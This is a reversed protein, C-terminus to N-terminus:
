GLAREREGRGQRQWACSHRGGHGDNSFPLAEGLWRQEIKQAEETWGVARRCRGGGGQMCALARAASSASAPTDGDRSVEEDHGSPWSSRSAVEGACSAGVVPEGAAAPSLGLKTKTILLVLNSIGHTLHNLNPM